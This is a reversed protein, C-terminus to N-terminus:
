KGKVKEKEQLVLRKLFEEVKIGNTLEEKTMLVKDYPESFSENGHNDLVVRKGVTLYLKGSMNTM